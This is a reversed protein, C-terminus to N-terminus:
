AHRLVEAPRIRAAKLVEACVSAWAVVLTAVLGLLFPLPTLSMREGFAQLYAQAALYAFPWAIMNAILVPKALDVLLLRVIGLSSSGLVKRVGIEHRRRNTVHVGIGLQGIAAIILATGALLMFLRNIREHERFSAAFLEDLFRVQAPVRPAVSDWARTLGTVADSLASHQIRVVPFLRGASSVPLLEYVQGSVDTAELRTVEAEAVGIVTAPAAPRGAMPQPPFYVIEGVAEQATPFGLRRAFMEDIIISRMQAAGTVQQRPLDQNPDFPRGAVMNIDMASFYDYDVRKMYATTRSAADDASRSLATVMGGAMWPLWEVASITEVGAVRALQAKLTEYDVDIPRLDNLFVIPDGHHALAKAELHARQMQTVTVLILLFSASAFQVVVLTSQVFRSGTRSRGAQLAEIPRVRSMVLAPYAGAAFGVLLVLALIALIPKYGQGLFFLANIGTSTEVSPAAFSLLGVAVIAAVSTLLLSEIWSQLAVQSRSAGVVKRMGIEKARSIAQATALNAYNVGAVVLTMVALGLLVLLASLGVASNSFLLSDLRLTTLNSIPFAALGFEGGQLQRPPVRSSVFDSLRRNLADISAGEALTIFTFGRIAMWNDREDLRAASPTASWQALVDFSFVANQGSGMISPQRVPAIVGTVSAQRTNNITVSEGLAPSSGFLREAAQQTLIAGTPDRLADERSGELFEFDFMELFSPDVVGVDLLAKSAGSAVAVDRETMARATREIEPFDTTLYRAVTSSSMGTTTAVERDAYSVTQGVVYLRDANAHYRDASQWYTAIGYAGLFCALGLALTLINAMTTFPSRAFKVLAIGLYHSIM